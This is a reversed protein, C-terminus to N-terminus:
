QIIMREYIELHNQFSSFNPKDLIMNISTVFPNYSPNCSLGVLAYMVLDRKTFSEGVSALHHFNM